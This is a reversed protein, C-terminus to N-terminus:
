AAVRRVVRDRLRSIVRNELQRARERSIGFRKGLSALTPADDTFRADFLARDRPDLESRLADAEAHVIGFLEEQMATQEADLTGSTLQAVLPQTGDPTPADLSLEKKDIRRATDAAVNPDVGLMGGIAESPVEFGAASLRARETRLNWFIKRQAQTSGIRV